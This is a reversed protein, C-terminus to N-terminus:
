WNFYNFQFSALLLNTKLIEPIPVFDGNGM